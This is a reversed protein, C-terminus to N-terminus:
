GMELIRVGLMEGLYILEGRGVKQGNVILSINEEPLVPLELINGPSLSMLQDLTMKIRSLEVSVHLPLDKIAMAEDEAAELAHPEPKKSEQMPDEQIFAYRTLQIKNQKMKAEFLPKSQLMLMVSGSQTFPAYSAQDLKIFDGERVKKWEKQTLSISGAKVGITVELKKSLPTPYYESPFASFYEIWSKRLAGPIILRSWCKKDGLHLSVDICFSKEAPLSNEEGLQLTMEKFLDLSQISDLAQLILFRYYGEQLVESSFSHNKEQNGLLIATLKKRDAQSTAFFLPTSLPTIIIASVIPNPGLGEGLEEASCWKQNKPTVTLGPMEFSHSLIQSLGNWDFPPANGFLPIDNESGLETKITRIWPIPHTVPTAHTM